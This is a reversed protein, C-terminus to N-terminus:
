RRVQRTQSETHADIEAVAGYAGLVLALIIGAWWLPSKEPDSVTNRALDREHQALAIGVGAILLVLIASTALLETM